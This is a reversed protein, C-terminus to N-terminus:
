TKNVKLRGATGAARDPHRRATSCPLALCADKVLRPGGSGLLKGTQSVLDRKTFLIPHLPLTDFMDNFPPFIRFPIVYAPVSRALRPCASWLYGLISLHIIFLHYIVRRM